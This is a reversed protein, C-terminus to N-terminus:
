LIVKVIEFENSYKKRLTKATTVMNELALKIKRWARTNPGCGPNVWLRELPIYKQANEILGFL